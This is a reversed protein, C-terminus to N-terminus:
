SEHWLADDVFDSSTPFTGVPPTSKLIVIGHLLVMRHRQGTTRVAGLKGHRVGIGAILTDHTGVASRIVLTVGDTDVTLMHQQLSLVEIGDSDTLVDGDTVVLAVVQGLVAHVPAIDVAQKLRVREYRHIIVITIKVSM